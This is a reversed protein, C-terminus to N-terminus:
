QSFQGLVNEVCALALTLELEWARTDERISTKRTFVFFRISVSMVACIFSTAPVIFAKFVEPPVPFYVTSVGRSEGTGNGFASGM